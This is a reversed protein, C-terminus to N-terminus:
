PWIGPNAKLADPVPLAQAEASGVGAMSIQLNQQVTQVQIKQASTLIASESALLASAGKHRAVSDLQRIQEDSLGTVYRYVGPPSPTLGQEAAAANSRAAAWMAQQDPALRSNVQDALISLVAARQSQAASVSQKLSPVSGLVAEDRPGVNVKRMAENLARRSELLTSDVQDLGGRGPSNAFSKVATLIDTATQLSVGLAALDSNTLALEGRLQQIRRYTAVEAVSQASPPGSPPMQDARVKRSEGGYQFITLLIAFALVPIALVFAWHRRVMAM